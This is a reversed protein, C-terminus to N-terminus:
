KASKQTRYASIMDTNVPTKRQHSGSPTIQHCILVRAGTVSHTPRCTNPTSATRYGAERLPSWVGTHTNRKSRSTTAIAAVM